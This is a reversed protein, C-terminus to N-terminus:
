YKRVCPSFPCDEEYNDCIDNMTPFKLHLSSGGFVVHSLHEMSGGPIVRGFTDTIDIGKINTRIWPPEPGSKIRQSRYAYLHEYDPEGKHCVDEEHIIYLLKEWVSLPLRHVM